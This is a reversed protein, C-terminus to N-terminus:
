SSERGNDEGGVEQLMRQVRGTIASQITRANFCQVSETMYSVLQSPYMKIVNRWRPRLFQRVKPPCVALVVEADRNWAHQKVFETIAESTWELQSKKRIEQEIHGPKPFDFYGQSKIVRIAALM